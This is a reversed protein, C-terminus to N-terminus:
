VSFHAADCVGRHPSEQQLGIKWGSMSVNILTGTGIFRGRSFVVPCYVPYRLYKRREM